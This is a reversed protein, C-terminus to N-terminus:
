RRAHFRNRCDRRCVFTLVMSLSRSTRAIRGIYANMGGAVAWLEEGLSAGAGFARRIAWGALQLDASSQTM